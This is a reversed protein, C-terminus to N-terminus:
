TCETPTSSTYTEIHQLLQDCYAPSRHKHRVAEIEQVLLSPCVASGEKLLDLVIVQLSADPDDLHVLLGRYLFELHGKYTTRDYEDSICKFWHSLTKAAAARVEDSADDLRKLLEPYIKNLKDPHLQRECASLLARIIRCSMLRCMKSDEELTTIVQPMLDDEVQLVEQHTLTESQLLVWLCSVAVTRIAGATRGAQWKLNPMIMNKIFSEFYRHLQGQSNVTESAKLLLKSLMTFLKLRMQPERTPQLCTKLIPVFLHLTEGMVPGSEVAIVEFQIQEVSYSTWHNHSESVWDLLQQMHQRYLDHPGNLGQVESLSLLTDQVKNNLSESAPSALIAILVKMCPLSVETCDQRCMGILSQICCLMQEQYLVKESGQCIESQSIVSAIKTLHTKLLERSCGRICAALTMLHSALPSKQLAPLILKLFVEPNVFTGILEASKVSNIVVQPEEDLCSRYLTSLLLEMHQTIHDEGHLLLVALLQSAKIRTGAVWDTVDRSIAPLIKSLNRFILERCGLGPRQVGAPYYLPCPASFDLKDKLDEENEKEWQSGIKEWYDLALKRIEPIEDTTSSLLLPILKHYFSYRDRLQLLWDGVVVTVAQRVQISDDFLRQALHSMVDDVSKGSGFQIVTGTTQIVAVRVKSHQHSITQMLPKILSEAQMHFHEPICQACNSACKCSEKKVDPFPDVITRQFIKIMEDLYPALKKGCVEVVLSLLEVMSLRLEESPEVVEQQGLRQSLAPMLYPLSDEPRPVNSVCHVIIQVSLERCKEMPDSLCRLLPKLLELFVDQLVASSLRENMAEKQIAALARKRTMKNEDNLCNLHRALAQTVESTARQEGDAAM